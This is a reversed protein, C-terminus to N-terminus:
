TREVKGHLIGPFSKRTIILSFKRILFSIVCLPWNQETKTADQCVCQQNNFVINQNMM